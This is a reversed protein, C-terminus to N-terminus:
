APTFTFRTEGVPGSTGCPNPGDLTYLGNTGDVNFTSRTVVDVPRGDPCFAGGPVFQELVYQSGQIHAQGQDTNSTLNFISICGPGCSTVRMLNDTVIGNAMISRHHYNGPALDANAPAALGLSVAACGTAIAGIIINKM